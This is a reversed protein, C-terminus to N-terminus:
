DSSPVQNTNRPRPPDRYDPPAVNWCKEDSAEELYRLVNNDSVVFESIGHTDNLYSCYLTIVEVDLNTANIRIALFARDSRPPLPKGWDEDTRGNVSSYTVAYPEDNFSVLTGGQINAYTANFIEVEKRSEVVFLYQSDPRLLPSDPQSARVYLLYGENTFLAFAGLAIIGALIAVITLIVINRIRM